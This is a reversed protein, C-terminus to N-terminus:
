RNASRTAWDTPQPEPEPDDPVMAETAAIAAQLEPRYANLGNVVTTAKQVVPVLDLDGALVASNLAVNASNVTDRMVLRAAELVALMAKRAAIEAATM